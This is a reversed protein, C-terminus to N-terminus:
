DALFEDIREEVKQLNKMQCQWITLVKWGLKRLERRARADREVNACFKAQWFRVSTRPSTTYRCRAHRHWFCGHVFIVKHRGPFVLDPKGPLRADHLRFRYGLSHVLRRLAMEPKTDKSRVLSMMQSRKARTVHDTM